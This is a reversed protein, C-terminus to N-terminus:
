KTLVPCPTTLVYFPLAQYCRVRGYAIDTGSMAYCTRLSMLAYAIDTRVDCPMHTAAYCLEPRPAHAYGLDTGSMATAAYGLETSPM